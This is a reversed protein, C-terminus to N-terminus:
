FNKREGTQNNGLWQNSEAKHMGQKPWFYKLVLNYEYEYTNIIRLRHIKPIETDKPLLVAILTLCRTFPNENLVAISTMNNHIHWM